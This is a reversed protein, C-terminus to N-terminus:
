ILTEKKMREFIDLPTGLDEKIRKPIDKDIEIDLEWPLEESLREYLKQLRKKGEILVNNLTKIFEDFGQSDILVVNKTKVLQTLYVGTALELIIGKSRSVHMIGSHKYGCERAVRLIMIASEINLTSLHIIPGTVNVWLSSYVPIKYIFSMTSSPVPVHTKFIITSNKRSWPTTSDSVTIRGSCSSMTYISSERNLLLLVPILDKDLYGIELDEWIRKWFLLKRMRWKKTDIPM